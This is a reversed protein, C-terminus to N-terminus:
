DPALAYRRPDLLYQLTDDNSENRRNLLYKICRVLGSREIGREAGRIESLKSLCKRRILKLYNEKGGTSDRGHDIELTTFVDSLTNHAGNALLDSTVENNTLQILFGLKRKLIYLDIPSIGMAYTLIKTKSHFSLNNARKLQNGEITSLPTTLSNRKCNITELGYVLKSRALSTYLLSKIQTSVNNKDFGLTNIESIGEMYLSKRKKFHKDHTGDACIIVGLFKFEVVKEISNGCM